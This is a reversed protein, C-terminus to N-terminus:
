NNGGKLEEIKNYIKVYDMFSVKNDKSLDAAKLYAGTLQNQQIHNYVKVYDLYSIKGDGNVDGRVVNIFEKELNPGNYIKTKGGTYVNSNSGIAKYDVEVRYGTKLSINDKFNNVTTNVDILDIYTDDYTYGNITYSPGDQQWIAYLILNESIKIEQEDIYSTGTGDAKTNWEKFSYGNNIYSNKTIKQLTDYTFTQNDINGTGGNPNFTITYTKPIWQAYFVLGNANVGVTNIYDELSIGGTEETYYGRFNYGLRTPQELSQLKSDDWNDIVLTSKNEAFIGENADLTISYTKEWIAYLRVTSNESSSITTNQNETYSIGTGDAKTNWEKFKYNSKLYPNEAITTLADNKAYTTILTKSAINYKYSNSYYEPKISGGNADYIITYANEEWIAILNLERAYSTAKLITSGGLWYKFGYGPRVPIPLEGYEERYRVTKSTPNVTGGNADFTVTKEEGWWIVYLTIIEKDINAPITGLNTYSVGTGDSKTNWEKIEFDTKTFTNEPLTGEIGAAVEISEMMGTGGNADFNITYHPVYTVSIPVNYIYGDRLSEIYITTNGSAMPILTGDEKVKIIAEDNSSFIASDIQSPNIYDYINYKTNLEQEIIIDPVDTNEIYGIKLRPYRNIGGVKKNEWYTNFNTWTTYNDPNSLELSNVGLDYLNVNELKLTENNIHRNPNTDYDPGLLNTNPIKLMNVNKINLYSNIGDLSYIWVDRFMNSRLNEDYISSFINEINAQYFRCQESILGSLKPSNTINGILQVNNMNLKEANLFAAVVGFKSFGSADIDIDLFINSLNLTSPIASGILGGTYSNSSRGDYQLKSNKVSINSLNVVSDKSGIVNHIGALTGCYNHCSIDFDELVINKIEVDNEISAFLGADGNLWVNGNESTIHNKQYLGIISHGKGDLTGSFHEISEWGFGEGTNLAQEETYYKGGEHTDETLDIDNNLIYYGDLDDRIQYLHTSNKIIYPDEETGSGLMKEYKINFEGIQENNLYLKFVYDGVTLNELFSITTNVNNEAVINNEVTISDSVDNQTSDFLKYIIQSNSPINKTDSYFKLENELIEMNNYKAINIYPVNDSNSTFISTKDIFYGDTSISIVTSNNILVNEEINITTLGPDTVLKSYEYNNNGTTISINYTSNATQNIFKIKKLIEFNLIKTEQLSYEINNINENESGIIYNNDWNKENKSNLDSVFAIQSKLSDYTLYPYQNDEGWSNRLIWVGKGNVINKCNSTDSKHILTDACYSFEINDDWGILQMAHGGESKHCNYVDVILQNDNATYTCSDNHGMFTSVYASGYKKINTKIENIFSNRIEEENTTLESTSERLNLTPMIITSELEYDSKEYNLVNHLEMKSLDKDNYAKFNNTNVISIGNAMAITSVYFNGGDGLKRNDIFSVYESKYNNIGNISTAYDLQRESIITSNENYSLNNTKLLYSEITEATSFAWCLNLDGQNRIPTVYNNGNVNRSDYRNELAESSFAQSTYDVITSMPIVNGIENSNLYEVYDPNLYPKNNEKNKETLLVEGTKEYVEKIYNQAEKPLYAYSESKLIYNIDNKYKYIDVLVFTVIIFAISLCAVVGIIKKKKLNM